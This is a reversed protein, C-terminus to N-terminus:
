ALRSTRIAEIHYRTGALDSAEILKRDEAKDGITKIAIDKYITFPIEGTDQVNTTVAPGTKEIEAAKVNGDTYDNKSTISDTTESVFETSAEFPKTSNKSVINNTLDIKENRLPQPAIFNIKGVKIEKQVQQKVPDKASPKNVCSEDCCTSLM